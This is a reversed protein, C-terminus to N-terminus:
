FSPYLYNTPIVRWHLHFDDVFGVFIYEDWHYGFNAGLWGNIVLFAYLIAPTAIIIFKGAEIKKAVPPRM